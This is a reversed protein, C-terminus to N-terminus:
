TGSMAASFRDLAEALDAPRDLVYPTDPRDGDFRVAGFGYRAWAFQCDAAQATQWDVPSDGVLLVASSERTLARLARPDPKRGEPGDGGVVADFYGSLELAELIRETPELPKNTLVTLRARTSATMLMEPVGAYPRTTELMRRAYIELFRPL